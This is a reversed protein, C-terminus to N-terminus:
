KNQSIAENYIKKVDPRELFNDILKNKIEDPLNDEFSLDPFNVGYKKQLDQELDIILQEFDKMEKKAENLPMKKKNLNNTSNNNIEEETEKTQSQTRERKKNLVEKTDNNSSEKKIILKPLNSSKINSNKNINSNDNQKPKEEVVKNKNLLSLNIHEKKANKSM